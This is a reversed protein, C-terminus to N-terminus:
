KKSCNHEFTKVCALTTSALTARSGLNTYLPKHMLMGSKVGHFIVFLHRLLQMYWFSFFTQRILCAHRVQCPQNFVLSCFTFVNSSVKSSTFQLNMWTIWQKVSSLDIFLYGSCSSLLLLNLMTLILNHTHTRYDM